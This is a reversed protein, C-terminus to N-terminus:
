SLGSIQVARVLELIAVVTVVIAVVARADKKLRRRNARKIVVENHRITAAQRSAAYDERIQTISYSM